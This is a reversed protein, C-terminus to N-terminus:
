SESRSSANDIGLRRMKEWLTTRSIGLMRASKEIQGDTAGLARSIQRREAADRVESLTAFIGEATTQEGLEPFLDAPMIWEGTGLAVARQLRNRLERVNGPWAHALAAEEALTSLGRIGRENAEDAPYLREALWLIDDLRHRLPPLEVSLGNL